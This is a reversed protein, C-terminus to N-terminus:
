ARLLLQYETESAFICNEGCPRRHRLGCALSKGVHSSVALLPVLGVVGFEVPLVARRGLPEVVDLWQELEGFNGHVARARLAQTPVAPFGSCAIRGM